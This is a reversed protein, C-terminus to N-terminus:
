AAQVKARAALRMDQFGNLLGILAIVHGIYGFTVTQEGSIFTPLFTSTTDLLEPPLFWKNLANSGIWLACATSGWVLIRQLMRSADKRRDYIASATLIFIAPLHNAPYFPHISSMLIMLGGIQALTYYRHRLGAREEAIENLTLATASESAM